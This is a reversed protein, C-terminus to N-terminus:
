RSVREYAKIDKIITEVDVPYNNHADLEVHYILGKDMDQFRNNTHSHGCLSIVRRNLPKDDDYNSTITPYHSLYFHYGNIKIM